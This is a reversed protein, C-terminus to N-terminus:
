SAIESKTLMWKTTVSSHPCKFYVKLSPFAVFAAAAHLPASQGVDKEGPSGCEAAPPFHARKCTNVCNARPNHSAPFFFLRLFSLMLLERSMFLRTSPSGGLFQCSLMTSLKQHAINPLFPCFLLFSSVLPAILINFYTESSYHLCGSIMVGWSHSRFM